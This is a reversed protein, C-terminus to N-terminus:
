TMTISGMLLISRISVPAGTGRDMLEGTEKLVGLKDLIGM